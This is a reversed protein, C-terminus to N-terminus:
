NEPVAPRLAAPTTQLKLVVSALSPSSATLTIDGPQKASQVIVQALGNFASREWAAPPCQDPEHSAPDGNGVGIIKGAPVLRGQSNKLRVAIVVVNEGAAPMTDRHAHLEVAAAPRTTEVTGRAVEKGGRYGRAELTGPQYGSNWELHSNSQDLCCFRPLRWRVSISIRRSLGSAPIAFTRCYWGVSNRPFNRGSAKFRHSGRGHPDFPLEVARDHPLNLRRWEGGDFNPSAPGDGYGTKAFFFISTGYGFDKKADTAHGVAFRWGFDM